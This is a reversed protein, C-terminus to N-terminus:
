AARRGLSRRAISPAMRVLAQMADVEDEISARREAGLSRSRLKARASEIERELMEVTLPDSVGPKTTAWFNVLDPYKAFVRSMVRYRYAKNSPAAVFVLALQAHREDHIPYKRESPVAFARSPLADRQQASLDGRRARSGRVDQALAKAAGALALAAVGSIALMSGNREYNPVVPVVIEIRGPPTPVPFSTIKFTHAPEL